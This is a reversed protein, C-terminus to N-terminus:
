SRACRRWTAGVERLIEIEGSRVRLVHDSADGQRFLFDGEKYQSLTTMIPNDQGTPTASHVQRYCTRRRQARFTGTAQSKPVNGLCMFNTRERWTASSKLRVKSGM